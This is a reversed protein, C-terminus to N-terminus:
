GSQINEAMSRIIKLLERRKRENKVSYFVKLLELTEKSYLRDDTGLAQQANDSLGHRYKKSGAEPLGEYFFDVEVDLAKSFELLRSAAIRNAGREYKQVQQFTVGVMEALKEQSINLFVRRMRIRKGVHADVPQASRENYLRPQAV